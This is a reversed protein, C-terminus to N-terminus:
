DCIHCSFCMQTSNMNKWLFTAEATIKLWSQVKRSPQGPPLTTMMEYSTAFSSDHGVDIIKVRIFMVNLYNDLYQRWWCFWWLFRIINHQEKSFPDKSAHKSRRSIDDTLISFRKNRSIPFWFNCSILFIDGWKFSGALHSTICALRDEAM